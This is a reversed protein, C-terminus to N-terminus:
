QTVTHSIAPISIENTYEVTYGDPFIVRTIDPSFDPSVLPAFWYQKVVREANKFSLEPTTYAVGDPTKKVSAFSDIVLNTEDNNVSNVSVTARFNNEIATKLQQGPDVLRTFVAAQELWNLQYTFDVQADGNDNVTIDLTKAQFATAPPMVCVLLLTIGLIVPLYKMINLVNGKSFQYVQQLIIAYDV